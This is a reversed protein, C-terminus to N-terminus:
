ALHTGFCSSPYSSMGAPAPVVSSHFAAITEARLEVQEQVHTPPAALSYHSHSLYLRRPFAREDDDSNDPDLGLVANM